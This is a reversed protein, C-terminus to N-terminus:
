VEKVEYEIVEHSVLWWDSEIGDPYLSDLFNAKRVADCKRTYGYSRVMWDEIRSTEPHSLGLPFSQLSVEEKGRYWDQVMGNENQETPTYHTKVIYYKM